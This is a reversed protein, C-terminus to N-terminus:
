MLYKRDEGFDGLTPAYRDSAVGLERLAREWAEQPSTDFILEKRATVPLWGGQAMEHDLQGAGWGAYGLFIRTSSRPKRLADRIAMPDPTLVLGPAVEHAETRKTVRDALLWVSEPMVPGGLFAAPAPQPGTWVLDLAYAVKELTIDLPKNVILGFAGDANHEVILVATRGFYPDVMDPAAVLLSAAYSTLERIPTADGHPDSM